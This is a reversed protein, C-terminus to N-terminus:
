CANSGVESSKQRLVRILELIIEKEQPSAQNLFSAIEQPLDDPTLSVPRRYNNLIRIFDALGRIEADDWNALHNLLAQVVPRCVLRRVELPLSAGGYIDQEDEMLFYCTSVGLAEAISSLTSISPQIRGTEIQGILSHSIGVQEALEKQTLGIKERLRRLKSGLPDENVSRLLSSTTVGLVSALKDLTKLSATSRGREIESIHALSVGSRRSLESLTIGKQERLRRLREGVSSRGGKKDEDQKEGGGVGFYSPDVGLIGAVETLTAASLRRKGQEVEVMCEPAIDLMDALTELAMGREERLQRLKEGISAM